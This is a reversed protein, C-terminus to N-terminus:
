GPGRGPAERTALLYAAPTGLLVVLATAWVSTVFSLKLASLVAPDGLRAVLVAPSVRALLGIFPLLLFVALAAFALAALRGFTSSASARPRPGSIASDSM